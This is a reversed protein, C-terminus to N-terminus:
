VLFLSLYDFRKTKTRKQKEELQQQLQLSVQDWKDDDNVDTQNNYIWNNM